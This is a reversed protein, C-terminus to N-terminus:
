WGSRILEPDGRFGRLPRPHAPLRLANTSAFGIFIAEDSYLLNYITYHENNYLALRSMTQRCNLSTLTSRERFGLSFFPVDILSRLDFYSWFNMRFVM